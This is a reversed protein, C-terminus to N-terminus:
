GIEKVKIIGLRLQTETVRNMTQHYRLDARLLALTQRPTLPTM